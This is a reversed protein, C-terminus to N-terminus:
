ENTAYRTCLPGSFSLQNRSLGVTLWIGGPHCLQECLVCNLQKPDIDGPRGVEQAAVGVPLLVVLLFLVIELYIAQKRHM